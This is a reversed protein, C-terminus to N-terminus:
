EKKMISQFAALYEDDSLTKLASETEKRRIQAVVAKLQERGVGLGQLTTDLTSNLSGSSPSLSLSPSSQKALPGYVSM